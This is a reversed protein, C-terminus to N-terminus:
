EDIEFSWQEMDFVEKLREIVEYFDDESRLAIGCDGVKSYEYHEMDRQIMEETLPVGINFALSCSESPIDIVKGDVDTIYGGIYHSPNNVDTNYIASYAKCFYHCAGGCLGIFTSIRFRLVRKDNKRSAKTVYDVVNKNFSDLSQFRFGEGITAPLPFPGETIDYGSEFFIHQNLWSVIEEDTKGIKKKDIM